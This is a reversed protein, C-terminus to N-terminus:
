EVEHMARFLKNELATEYRRFTRVLPEFKESSVRAPLGRDILSREFSPMGLFNQAEGYIPPNLIDTIYEAELRASRGLRTM